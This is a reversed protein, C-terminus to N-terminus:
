KHRARLGVVLVTSIWFLSVLGALLWIAPLYHTPFEGSFLYFVGLFITGTMLSMLLALLVKPVFVWGLSRPALGFELTIQSVQEKYTLMMINIMGGLMFSVLAIGVGIIPFWNVMQPLPYEEAMELPPAPMDILNYFTWMVEAQYIRHNKALDDIFNGFHMEIQPSEGQRLRQSFDAPIVWVADLAYRDFAQWAESEPLPAVQYYPKGFPSLTEDLAQRLVNGYPGEDHNLLAMQFSVSGSFMLRFAILIFLPPILGGMATVPDRRWAKIETSMIIWFRQM